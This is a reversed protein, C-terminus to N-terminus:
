SGLLRGVWGRAVEIMAEAEDVVDMLGLVRRIKSTDYVIDQRFDQGGDRAPEVDLDPLRALREAITPTEADGINFIQATARPDSVAVAIAEAVNDIHGHTWRWSPHHRYAYVTALREPEDPGYVKPLRLVTGPLRTSRMVTREVLLKEYWHELASPASAASRYPYLHERLPSTESLPTPEVPGPESGHFRGYARYVDGSSLAVIRGAYGEFWAMAAQSDAEGMAMMHLVVDPAFTRTEPPFVTVPMGATPTTFARVGPPLPASHVGRHLVAIEWGRAHLLHVVRPGIMRTGGILLCRM